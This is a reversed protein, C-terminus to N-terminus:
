LFMKRASIIVVNYANEQSVYACEWNTLTSTERSLPWLKNKKEALVLNKCKRMSLIWRPIWHYWCIKDKMAGISLCHWFCLRVHKTPCGTCEQSHIWQDIDLISSFYAIMWIKFIFISWYGIHTSFLSADMRLFPDMSWYRINFFISGDILLWYQDFHPQWEKM